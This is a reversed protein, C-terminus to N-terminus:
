IVKQNIHKKQTKSFITNNDTTIYQVIETFLEEEKKRNKDPVIKINNTTYYIVILYVELIYNIHIFIILEIQWLFGSLLKKM